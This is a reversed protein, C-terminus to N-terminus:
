SMGAGRQEYVRGNLIKLAPSDAESLVYTMDGAATTPWGDPGMSAAENKMLAM